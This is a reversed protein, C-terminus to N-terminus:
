QDARVPGGARRISGAISSQYNRLAGVSNCIPWQAVLLTFFRRRAADTQVDPGGM